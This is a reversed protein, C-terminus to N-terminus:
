KVLITGKEMYEIQVKYPNYPFYVEVGQIDLRCQKKAKKMDISIENIRERTYNINDEQNFTEDENEYNINMKKSNTKSFNKM